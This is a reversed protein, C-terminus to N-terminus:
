IMFCINRRAHAGKELYGYAAMSLGSYHSLTPLKVSLIARGVEQYHKWNLPSYVPFFNDMFLAPTCYSLFVTLWYFVSLLSLLSINFIILFM